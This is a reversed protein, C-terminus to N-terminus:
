GSAERTTETVNYNAIDDDSMDLGDPGLSYLDYGDTNVEGPHKYQLEREWADRLSSPDTIYPGAWTAAQADDEPKDTLESLTDPYRGMHTRFLELLKPVAGGPGVM